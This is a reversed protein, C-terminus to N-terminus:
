EARDVVKQVMERMVLDLLDLIVDVAAIDENEIHGRDKVIQDRFAELACFGGRFFENAFVATEGM